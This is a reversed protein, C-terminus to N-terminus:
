CSDLDIPQLPSAASFFGAGASGLLASKDVTTTAGNSRSRWWVDFDSSITQSSQVALYGM